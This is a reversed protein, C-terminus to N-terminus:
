ATGAMSSSGSPRRRRRAARIVTELQAVDGDIADLTEEDAEMEALDLLELNDTINTQLGQLAEMREMLRTREKNVETAKEVQDWFGPESIQADLIELREELAPLNEAKVLAEVRQGLADIRSSRESM